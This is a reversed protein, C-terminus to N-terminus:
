FAITFSFINESCWSGRREYKIDIFCALSSTDKINGSFLMKTHIPGIKRTLDWDKRGM